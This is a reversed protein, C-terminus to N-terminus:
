KTTFKVEDNGASPLLRMNMTLMVVGDMDGYSPETLQVKPADLQFINNAASNIQALIAATTVGRVTTFWDKTALSEAQLEVSGTATRGTIMMATAGVLNRYVMNNGLDVTLSRFPAQTKTVSHITLTPVVSDRVGVPTQWGTFAVGSSAADTPANYVGMFRFRLVPIEGAAIRLQVNGVAGTLRHLVTDGMYCYLTATAFSASVPSFSVDSAGTTMAMGCAELLPGFKPATTVSTGAGAAEVEFEVEVYEGVVLQESGGLFQRVLDRDASQIVLPRMTMNRIQIANLAGTPLADTGQTTEKKALVVARRTFLPM